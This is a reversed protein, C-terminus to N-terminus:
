PVIMYDAFLSFGEGKNEIATTTMETKHHMTRVLAEM